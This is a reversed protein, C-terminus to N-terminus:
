VIAHAIMNIFEVKKRKRRRKKKIFKDRIIIFVITSLGTQLLESSVRM